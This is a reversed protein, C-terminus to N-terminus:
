PSQTERITLSEDEAFYDPPIVDNSPNSMISYGAPPHSSNTYLEFQHGIEHVVVQQAHHTTSFSDAWNPFAGDNHADRLTEEFIFAYEPEASYNRGWLFKQSNPDGDEDAPPEYVGMVYASWYIDSEPVTGRSEPSSDTVHYEFPLAGETETPSAQGASIYAPEFASSLLGLDPHAVDGPDADTNIGDDPFVTTDPPFGMSDTEVALGRWVTLLPTVGIGEVNSGEDMLPPETQDWQTDQNTDFFLRSLSDMSLPEVRGLEDLRPSAAIRFKNGPQIWNITFTAEAAGASDTTVSSPLLVEADTGTVFNDNNNVDTVTEDPDDDIPGDDDSPDDVDYWDLYITVGELEPTITLFVDVKNTVPGGLLEADPYFDKGNGNRANVLDGAEDSTTGDPTKHTTWWIDAIEAVDKPNPAVAAKTGM